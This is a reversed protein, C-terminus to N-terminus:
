VPWRPELAWDFPSRACYMKEDLSSWGSPRRSRCVYWETGKLHFQFGDACREVTAVYDVKLAADAVVDDWSPWSQRMREVFVKRSQTQEYEMLHIRYVENKGETDLADDGLRQKLAKPRNRHRM